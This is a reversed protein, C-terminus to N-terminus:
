NKFHNAVHSGAFTIIEYGGFRKTLCPYNISKFFNELMLYTPKGDVIHYSAIAFNPEYKEILALCGEIAQIEAGEIDLKIFDLRELKNIKEWTDLSTTKKKVIGDTGSFWLASSAVTGSEQFDIETEENWMLENHIRYNDSCNNLSFNAKLKDINYQDPEFSHVYGKDGVKMLFLLSLIGVNAGGDIVVDGSKIKYFHQYNDFDPTITYLPEYTFLNLGEYITEYILNSNKKEILKYKISKSALANYWFMKLKEKFIGKPLLRSITKKISKKLTM